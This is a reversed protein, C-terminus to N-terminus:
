PSLLYANSMVSLWADWGAYFKDDVAGLHGCLFGPRLRDVEGARSADGHVTWLLTNPGHLSLACHLALAEAQTMVEARTVVFIKAAEALDAVFKRQLFALIRCQEAHVAAQTTQTEDKGTSYWLYYTQEHVKFEPEPPDSLYIRTKAPNGVGGFRQMVGEVLANTVVSAFRLLSLPEAGFGRQVLGFECNHGMSEFRMALASATLGTASAAAAQLSADELRGPLAPLTRVAGDWPPLWFVRLRTILLGLARGQQDLGAAPRPTFANLHTFTLWVAGPEYPGPPLVFALTRQDSLQVTALLRGNIALMVTQGPLSAADCWPLAEIVLVCDPGPDDLPLSLRSEPGVTWRHAPEVPGWGDATYDPSRGYQDFLIEILLRSTRAEDM